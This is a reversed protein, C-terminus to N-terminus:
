FKFHKHGILEVLLRTAINLETSLQSLLAVVLVTSITSFLTDGVTVTVTDGCVMDYGLVVSATRVDLKQIHACVYMCIM